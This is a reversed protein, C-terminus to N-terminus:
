RAMMRRVSQILEKYVYSKVYSERFDKFEIETQIKDPDLEEYSDIGGKGKFFKELIPKIFGQNVRERVKPHVSVVPNFLSLLAYDHKIM